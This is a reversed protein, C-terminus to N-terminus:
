SGIRNGDIPAMLASQRTIPFGQDGGELAPQGGALHRSDKKDTQRQIVIDDQRRTRLRDGVEVGAEGLKEPMRLIRAPGDTRAM